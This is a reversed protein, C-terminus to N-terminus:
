VDKFQQNKAFGYNTAFRSPVIIENVSLINIKIYENNRCSVYIGGTTDIITGPLENSGSNSSSYEADTIKLEFGNYTTIAGYNWPNCAKVLNCIERASMMKWSILVDQLSPQNYYGAEQEEQIATPISKENEKQQVLHMVGEILYHSFLQHVYGYSYFEENPYEKKWAIPGADYRASLQHISIAITSVGKKLQWFVPNPGRFQPLHGFHVNYIELGAPLKDLHILQNFGVVFAIGPQQIGLWEYLSHNSQNQDIYHIGSNALFHSVTDKDRIIRSGLFVIVENRTTRLYSVLPLCLECYSIVAIKM